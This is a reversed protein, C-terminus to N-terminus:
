DRPNFPDMLRGQERARIMHIESASMGRRPGGRIYEAEAMGAADIFEPRAAFTRELLSVMDKLEATSMRPSLDIVKVIDRGGHTRAVVVIMGADRHFPTDVAMVSSIREEIQQVMVRTKNHLYGDIERRMDAVSGQLYQKMTPRILWLAFRDVQKRIWAKIKM